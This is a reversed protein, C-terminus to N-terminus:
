DLDCRYVDLDLVDTVFCCLFDFLSVLYTCLTGLWMSVSWLMSISGMPGFTLAAAHLDFRSVNISCSDTSPNVKSANVHQLWYPSRSFLYSPNTFEGKFGPHRPLWPMINLVVSSSRCSNCDVSIALM